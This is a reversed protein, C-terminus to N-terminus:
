YFIQETKNSRNTVWLAVEHEGGGLKVRDKDTFLMRLIVRYIDTDSVLRKLLQVRLLFADLLVWTRRICRLGYRSSPIDYILQMGDIREPTLRIERVAQAYIRESERHWKALLRDEDTWILSAVLTFLDWLSM